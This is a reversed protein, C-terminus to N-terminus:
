KRRRLFLGGLGLLAISMPEPIWSAHVDDIGVLVGPVNTAWVPRAGYAGGHDDIPSAVTIAYYAWDTTIDFFFQDRPITSPSGGGSDGGSFDVWEIYMSGAGTPTGSISKFWGSITVEGTGPTSSWDLKETADARWTCSESWGWYESYGVLSTTDAGFFNQSGNAGGTTDIYAWHQTWKYGSPGSGSGSGWTGWGAGSLTDTAEFGANAIPTDHLEAVAFGAFALLVILVILKKMKM